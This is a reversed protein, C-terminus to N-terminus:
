IIKPVRCARGIKTTKKWGRESAKGKLSPLFHQNLAAFKLLYPRMAILLTWHHRCRASASNWAAATRPRRFHDKAAGAEVAFFSPWSLRWSPLLSDAATRFGKRLGDWGGLSWFMTVQPRTSLAGELAGLYFMQDRPPPNEARLSTNRLSKQHVGDTIEDVQRSVRWCNQLVGGAGKQRCRFRYRLNWCRHWFQSGLPRACINFCGCFGFTSFLLALLLQTDEPSFAWFLERVTCVRNRPLSGWVLNRATDM